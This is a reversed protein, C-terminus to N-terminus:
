PKRETKRRKVGKLQSTDNDKNSVKKDAQEDKEETTKRKKELQVIVKRMQNRMQDLEQRLPDEKARGEDKGQLRAGMYRLTGVSLAVVAQAQAKKAADDSDLQRVFPRLEKKIKALADKTSELDTIHDDQTM